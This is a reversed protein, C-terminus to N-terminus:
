SEGVKYSRLSCNRDITQLTLVIEYHLIKKGNSCLCIMDEKVNTAKCFSKSARGQRHNKELM